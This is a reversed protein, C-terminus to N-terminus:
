KKCWEWKLLEAHWVFAAPSGISVPYICVVNHLWQKPDCSGLLATQVRWDSKIINQLSGGSESFMSSAFRFKSRRHLEVLTKRHHMVWPAPTGVSTCLAIWGKM